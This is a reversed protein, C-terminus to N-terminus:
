DSVELLIHRCVQEVDAVLISLILQNLDSRLDLVNSIEHCSSTNLVCAKFIPVVSVSLYLVVFSHKIIKSSLILCDISSDQNILRAVERLEADLVHELVNDLRESM